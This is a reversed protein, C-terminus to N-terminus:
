CYTSPPKSKERRELENKLEETTFKEIVCYKRRNNNQEQVTSWKVNGVEYNGNNDIRDVTMGKAPKKGIENYFDEFSLFKCKIGRGGYHPNTKDSCRKHMSMWSCYEPSKSMRHTGSNKAHQRAKERQLCGCSKVHGDKIRYGSCKTMRGCDCKCVWQINRHYKDVGACEVVTLRNFRMGLLDLRKM